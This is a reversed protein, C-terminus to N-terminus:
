IGKYKEDEILRRLSQRNRILILKKDILYEAPLLRGNYTSAMTRTYAGCNYILLYEGIDLDPLKFIGFEDANECLPGAVRVDFRKSRRDFLPEIHHYADYLAPRPNETMGADIMHIPLHSRQKKDIIRTLIYGADAVLFRGPELFIMVNFKEKLRKYCEAIPNLDIPKESPKYPVGFGGGLNVYNIEMRNKRFFEIAEVVKKSADIFPEPTLVQSGIHSHIGVLRTYKFNKVIKVIESLEDMKIGFKSSESGTSLHPHTQPFIGPNIRAFVKIERGLKGAVKELILAQNISEFNFWIVGSKLAYSIEEEKKAVNNYLIESGRFGAKRCIFIEGPSVVEAGLGQNKILKLITM